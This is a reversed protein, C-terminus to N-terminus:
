IDESNKKSNFIDLLEVDIIKDLENIKKKDIISSEEFDNALWDHNWIKINDPDKVKKILKPSQEFDQNYPMELRQLWINVFETNPYKEFKLGIKSIIELAEYPDILDLLKSLIAVCHEIVKSNNEMIDIVIGIVQLIDKPTNDLKNIAFKYLNTLATKLSGSNPYKEALIKIQLLYKQLNIKYPYKNDKESQLNSEILTWYLKDEKIADSIIDKSLFTKSSNLKFNWKALIETLKKTVHEAIVKSNAFIRYDDRFRLIKIDDIDNNFSSSIRKEFEMDAGCLVIEAILDMLVSGQPIGNTQGYQMDRIKKDIDNGLGTERNKKSEKRTHIAWPISHTYISGYCNAIDVHMCYKYDMSYKIQLQEFNKWWNLINEANDSRKRKSEAPLSVCKFIQSNEEKRFNSLIKEWSKKKTILNVLDVYILPHILTLPRWSYLGNKNIMLTYNVNEQNYIKNNKNSVMLSNLESNQLKKSSENIIKEFNFYTPLNLTTYSEAKLLFKRSETSTM